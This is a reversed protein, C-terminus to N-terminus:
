FTGYIIDRHSIVHFTGSSDCGVKVTHRFGSPGGIEIDNSEEKKGFLKFRKKKSSKKSESM